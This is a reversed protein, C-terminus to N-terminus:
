RFDLTLSVPCHDSGLIDAHIAADTVATILDPSIFFYDLRWGVNRERAGGIATWWTYAGTKDPYLHRYTDIYGQAVVQDIWACEEPMFGTKQRNQKPRALDIEKHSTNVDGCFVVAKGQVRLANCYALFDAKYQMKFPVRGHDRGGNPFYAGIFVFQDYEAVITRGERDFDPLGLGIQVHRPETKSYLAVGSYGKKEAFAWYTHYGDPQRLTVDLQDPHAKTEQLCLIDPQTQHLWTLFGKNQVARIGNVNWSYLNIM